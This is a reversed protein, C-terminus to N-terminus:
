GIPSSSAQICALMAEPTPDFALKEVRAQDLQVVGYRMVLQHPRDIFKEDPGALVEHLKEGPRLGTYIFNPEADPRLQRQLQRAIEVIKVPEGMDLVHVNGDGGVAGAQVVLQCAEETTMFFRTVEPDTITIPQGSEIQQRFTPIASGSSGLVNGFRVSMFTGDSRAAFDATLMEGIRKTLGLVNAPDAAKDTSINVFREVGVAAAAELVNRTGLVNTKVAEAPYRELFAVHKHAAAHFVVEPQIDEMVERLQDRDRIDCLVLGNRDVLARGEMDMELRYLANEDHDLKFLKKPNFGEVVRCLVSGISGGAGTILVKKGALYGAIELLDLSIEDRRLFDALTIDRIDSALVAADPDTVFKALRPLIRVRLGADQAISAIETVEYQTASPAAILLTDSNYRRAAAAINERGGVVPLGHPRLRAKRRDDDLFAVPLVDADPDRWIAMAAELGAEGAGLILLRSKRQHASYGQAGYVARAIYRATLALLVHYAGGALIAGRPLLNTGPLISIAAFLLVAGLASGFAVWTIEEYSGLRFRGRYLGTAYGWALQGIAVILFAQFLRQQNVESWNFDMRALDAVTLAVAWALVDVSVLRIHPFRTRIRRPRSQWNGSRSAVSSLTKLFIRLDTVLSIQDIYQIDYHINDVLHRGDGRAEVQWLGTIGPRVRHREQQWEQLERADELGMPRPGVFSMDGKLVNWIQPLEDLSWQRLFDGLKKRWGSEGTDGHNTRLRYLDFPHGGRGMSASRTIPAAAFAGWSVLLLPLLAPLTLLAGVLAFSRDLLPKAM